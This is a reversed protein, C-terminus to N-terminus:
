RKIPTIKTSKLSLSGMLGAEGFVFAIADQQFSITSLDRSSGWTIINLSGDIGAQWGNGNLFSDLARQSIFAIVLSRKQLGAQLGISGGGFSYFGRNSGAVRLVGEGYEGGLIFGGKYISPFILYGKVKSLFPESGEVSSYFQRLAFDAEASIIQAPKAYIPTSLFILMLLKALLPM